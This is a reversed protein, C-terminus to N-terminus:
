LLYGCLKLSSIYFSLISNRCQYRVLIFSVTAIFIILSRELNLCMPSSLLCLNMPYLHYRFNFLLFSNRTQLTFVSTLLILTYLIGAYCVIRICECRLALVLPGICYIPFLFLKWFTRTEPLVVYCWHLNSIRLEYTISM